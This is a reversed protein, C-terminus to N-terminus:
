VQGRHDRSSTQSKVRHTPRRGRGIGKLATRRTKRWVRQEPRM